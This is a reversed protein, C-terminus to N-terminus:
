LFWQMQSKHERGFQSFNPKGRGNFCQKLQMDSFFLKLKMTHSAKRSKTGKRCNLFHSFCGHLLTVNLFTAFTVSRRSHKERIKFQVFPVLNRLADSFFYIAIEQDNAPHDVRKLDFYSFAHKTKKNGRNQSEGKQRIVSLLHEYGNHQYFVSHM